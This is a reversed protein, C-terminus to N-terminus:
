DIKIREEPCLRYGKHNSKKNENILPPLSGTISIYISFMVGPTRVWQSWEELSINSLKISM